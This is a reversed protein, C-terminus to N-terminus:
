KSKKAKKPVPTKNTTPKAPKAPTPAATVAVAVTPAAAAGPTTSVTPTAKVIATSGTDAGDKKVLTVRVEGEAQSRDEDLFVRIRDATLISGKQEVQPSETLLLTNTAAEYLAKGGTAKLELKTIIVDGKAIMRQIENKESYVGELTKTTLTMEGQTVKVNGSYIFVRDKNQLILTDSSINTPLNQLGKTDFVKKDLLHSASQPTTSAEPKSVPTGTPDAYVGSPSALFFACSILLATLRPRM